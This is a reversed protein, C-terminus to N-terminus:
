GVSNLLGLTSLYKQWLLEFRYLESSLFWNFALAPIVPTLIASYLGTFFRFIKITVWGNVWHVETFCGHVAEHLLNVQPHNDRLLRGPHCLLPHPPQSIWSIRSRRCLRAERQLHRVCLPDDPHRGHYGCQPPHNHHPSISRFAFGSLPTSFARSPPTGHSLDM